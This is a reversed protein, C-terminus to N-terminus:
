GGITINGNGDDTVPVTLGSLTVTGNGDHTVTCGPISLTVLGSSDYAVTIGDPDDPPIVPPIPTPQVIAAPESSAAGRNMIRLYVGPRKKREGTKFFAM